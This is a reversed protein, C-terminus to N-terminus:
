EEVEEEKPEFLNEHAQNQSCMYCPYKDAKKLEHKCTNCSM